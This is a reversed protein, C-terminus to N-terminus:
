QTLIWLIICHLIHVKKPLVHVSIWSSRMTLNVVLHSHMLQLLPLWISYESTDLRNRMKTRRIWRCVHMSLWESQRFMNRREHLAFECMWQCRSFYWFHAMIIVDECLSLTLQSPLIYYSEVCSNIYYILVCKISLWYIVFIKMYITNWSLSTCNNNIYFCQNYL